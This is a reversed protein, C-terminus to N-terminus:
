TEAVDGDPRLDAFLARADDVVAAQMDAEITRYRELVSRGLATASAGGRAVGGHTTIVLPERWCGNMASVLLWARRYSMGMARAAASISGEAVIAELLAAKGPGFALADGNVVQLRLKLRPSPDDAMARDHAADHAAAM